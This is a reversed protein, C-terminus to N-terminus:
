EFFVQDPSNRKVISKRKTYSMKNGIWIGGGEETCIGNDEEPTSCSATNRIVKSRILRFTAQNEYVYSYIGGGRAWSEDADATNGTINAVNGIIKSSLITLDGHSYIGSGAAEYWYANVTNGTIQSHKITTNGRCDIGGGEASTSGNVTNRNVQSYSLTLNDSSSIGGGIAYWSDSNVSNGTIRSREITTNHFCEIGGGVAEMGGEVSNGTVKSRKITLYGESYIGGGVACEGALTSNGTVRSRILTLTTNSGGSFIGGGFSDAATITNGNVKSDILTTKVNNDWSYSYIGGGDAAIAPGKANNKSIISNRITLIGANYIGDGSQIWGSTNNKTISSKNITLNGLNSIGGGYASDAQVTNKTITCHNITLDGENYIGGGTGDHSEQVEGGTVIIGRMKVKINPNLATTIFFVRGNKNGDIFVRNGRRGQILLDQQIELQGMTLIYRGPQLVITDKGVAANAQKVADRLSGPDGDAVTDDVIFIAAQTMPTGFFGFIMVFTLVALFRVGSFMLKKKM